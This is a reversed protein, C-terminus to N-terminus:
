FTILPRIISEASEEDLFDMIFFNGFIPYEWKSSMETYFEDFSKLAIQSIDYISLYPSDVELSRIITRTSGTQTWSFIFLNEHTFEDSNGPIHIDPKVGTKFYSIMKSNFQSMKPYTEQDAYTNFMFRSDVNYWVLKSKKFIKNEVNVSLLIQKKQNILEGITYKGIDEEEPFIKNGFVSELIELLEQEKGIQNNLNINRLMLVVFESPNQSLFDNVQDFFHKLEPGVFSSHCIKWKLDLLDVSPRIDLVRAGLTLQTYIDKTQTHTWNKVLEQINWGAAIASQVLIDTIKNV